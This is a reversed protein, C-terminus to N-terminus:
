EILLRPKLSDAVAADRSHFHPLDVVLPNSVPMDTTLVLGFNQTPNNAWFKALATIDIEWAGTYGVTRTVSGAPTAVADTGDLGIFLQSWDEAGNQSGWFRERGTAGNVTASNKVDLAVGTGENWNKLLRHADIRFNGTHVNKSLWNRVHLVLTAKTISNATTGAPINFQVLGRHVTSVDYAGICFYAAKGQNDNTNAIASGAPSPGWVHTDQNAQLTDRLSVPNGTGTTDVQSSDPPPEVGNLLITGGDTEQRSIVILTASYGSPLTPHTVTVRVGGQPLGVIECVGQANTNDSWPTGAVQCLAGAVATGGSTRVQLSLTGSALVTDTGLDTNESLVLNRLLLSLLTDGCKSTVILDYTGKDLNKFTFRGQGNSQVSDAKLVLDVHALSTRALKPLVATSDVRKVRVMAGSLPSGSETVLRGSLTVGQGETGGGGPASGLDCGSLALLGMLCFVLITPYLLKM